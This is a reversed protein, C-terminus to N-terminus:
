MILKKKLATFEENTIIGESHMHALKMLESSINENTNLNGSIKVKNENKYNTMAENIAASIKKHNTMSFRVIYSSVGDTQRIHLTGYGLITGFFNKSYYMEFVKSIDIGFNVTKWPLLGSKIIVMDDQFVWKIRSNLIIARLNTYLVFLGFALIGYIMFPHEDVLDRYSYYSVLCPTAIILILIVNTVYSFWHKKSIIM